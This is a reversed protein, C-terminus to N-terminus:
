VAPTVDSIYVEVKGLHVDRARAEDGAGAKAQLTTYLSPPDALGQM